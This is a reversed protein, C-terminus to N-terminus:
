NIHSRLPAMISMNDNNFVLIFTISHFLLMQLKFLSILEVWANRFFFMYYAVYAIVSLLEPLFEEKKKDGATLGKLLISDKGRLAFIGRKLGSPSSADTKLTWTHSHVAGAVNSNVTEQKCIM